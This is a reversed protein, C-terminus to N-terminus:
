EEVGVALRRRADAGFQTAVHLFIEQPQTDFVRGFGRYWPEGRLLNLILQAKLVPHRYRRGRIIEYENLLDADAAVRGTSLLMINRGRKVMLYVEVGTVSYQLNGQGARARALTSLHRLYELAGEQPISLVADRPRYGATQEDLQGITDPFEEAFAWVDAVDPVALVYGAIEETPHGDSVKLRRAEGVGMVVPWFHLLLGQDPTDVFPVQEANEDQAGIYLASSLATNSHRGRRQADTWKRLAVWLNQGLTCAHGDAREEFPGRTRPVGRLTSWVAERWLKRWPEPMGLGRHFDAKPAVQEWTFRRKGDPGTREQLNRFSKGPPKHAGSREEWFGDYLDDVVTQLSERTLPVIVQGQPTARCDPLPGKYRQKLTDILVVLGALGARHQATPLTLPDYTLVLEDTM